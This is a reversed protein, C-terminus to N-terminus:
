DMLLLYPRVETGPEGTEQPPTGKFMTPMKSIKSTKYMESIKSTKYIRSMYSMKSLIFRAAPLCCTIPFPFMLAFYMLLVVREINNSSIPKEKGKWM